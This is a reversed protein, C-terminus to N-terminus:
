KWRTLIAERDFVSVSARLTIADIVLLLIAGVALTAYNLTLFGALQALFLGLVPVVLVGITQEVARPDNVRSSVIISLAVGMTAALPSVVLVMLVWVPSVLRSFALTSVAMLRAGIAFTLFSLWTVGLAPTVAALCKGLLLEGTSIPTALLPELSRQLKEGVISYAAISVPIILPMLLFLTLFYQGMLVQGAEMETLGAFQPRGMFPKMDEMGAPGFHSTGFLTGLSLLVMLVPPLAVMLLVMKNRFVDAWEKTMIVWIRHKIM